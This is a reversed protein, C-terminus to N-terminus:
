CALRGDTAASCEALSATRLRSFKWDHLGTASVHWRTLQARQTHTHKTKKTKFISGRETNRPTWTGRVLCLTFFCLWYKLFCWPWGYIFSFLTTSSLCCWPDSGIVRSMGFCPSTRPLPFYFLVFGVDVFFEMGVIQLSLRDKFM